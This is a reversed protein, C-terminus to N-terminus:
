FKFNRNASMTVGEIKDNSKGVGSKVREYGRKM